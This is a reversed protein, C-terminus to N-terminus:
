SRLLLYKAIAACERLYRMPFTYWEIGSHLHSCNMGLRKAILSARFIHYDSTILLVRYACGDFHRDLLEKSCVLNTYTSHSSNETIIRNEPVGKDILYKKMACAETINEEPGMGGSVVIVARTNAKSYEAAKDLRKALQVSVTKDSIGAGHVIVADEHYDASDCRGFIALFALLAAAIALASLILSFLWKIKRINDFLFGFALLAAGLIFTFAIGYNFSFMFLMAAADAVLFIGSIIILAKIFRNLRM